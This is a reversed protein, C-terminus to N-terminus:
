SRPRNFVINVIIIGVWIILFSQENGLLALPITAATGLGLSTIALALRQGETPGRRSGKPAAELRADVRRDVEQRIKDLFSAVIEDEFEPGLDRRAAVAARLEDGSSTM